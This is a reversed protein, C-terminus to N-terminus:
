NVSIQSVKHSINIQWTNGHESQLPKDFLYYYYYNGSGM